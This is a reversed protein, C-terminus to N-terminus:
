VHANQKYFQEKNVIKRKNWMELELEKLACVLHKCLTDGTKFAEPNNKSWSCGCKVQVIKGERIFLTPFYEEGYNYEKKETEM